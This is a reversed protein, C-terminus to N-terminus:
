LSEESPKSYRSLFIIQLLLFVFMFGMSGFLKFNVWIDTSFNYAILLNLGGMAIFFAIWVYNLKSWVTEPIVLDDELKSLFTRTLNKHLAFQSVILAVAYSWYLMTPKWKIFTENHFYITLGGFVSVILFSIWLMGDVKKRRVLLYAIQLVTAVITVATALIIPALAQSPVGGSILNGFYTQLFSQAASAHGEGWKFMVFFLIVPFLDFLIKM